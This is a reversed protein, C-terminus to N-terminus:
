EVVAKARLFQSSIATIMRQRQIDKRLIRFEFFLTHKGGLTSHRWPVLCHKEKYDEGVRLTASSECIFNDNM